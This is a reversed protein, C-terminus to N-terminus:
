RRWPHPVLVPTSSKYHEYDPNGGWRREAKKELLPIGSVKTLLLTVFVPSIVGVWQWGRFTPAAAVTVGIWVVIEGLYNPHRSWAWLGTHIFTGTTAPDARFVRKQQDAIAELGFGVMWIAAGLWALWDVHVAHTSTIAIWAGSATMAVWLGQMTWVRWFAAPQQKIEDFRDDGSTKLVRTFLHLGLRAAWVMVLIGLLLGRAGLTPVLTLLLATILLYTASGTLDYFKETRAILAPVFAVWQIVFAGAVAWIFLHTGRWSAGGASGAWALVAGIIVAVVGTIVSRRTSTSM